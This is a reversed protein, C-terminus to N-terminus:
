LNREVPSRGEERGEGRFHGWELAENRAILAHLSCFSAKDLKFERQKVIHLLQRCGEALNLIQQLDSVKRGGVTVGEVLPKVEPLTLQNKELVGAEWVYQPLSRQFRFV